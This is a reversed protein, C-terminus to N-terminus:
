LGFMFVNDSEDIEINKGLVQMFYMTPAYCRGDIIMVKYGRGYYVGNVLSFSSYFAQKSIEVTNTKANWTVKYNMAECVQRLPVYFVGDIIKVPDPLPKANVFVTLEYENMEYKPVIISKKINDLNSIINKCYIYFARDQAQTFPITEEIYVAFVYNRSKMIKKLSYSEDWQAKDFIYLSMLLAPKYKQSYSACYFDLKELAKTTDELTVREATIFDRATADKPMVFTYEAKEGKITGNTLDLKTVVDVAYINSCPM